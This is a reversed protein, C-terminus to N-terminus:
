TIWQLVSATSESVRDQTRKAQKQPFRALREIGEFRRQWSVTGPSWPYDNEYRFVQLAARELALYPQLLYLYEDMTREPDEPVAFVEVVLDRIGAVDGGNDTVMAGSVVFTDTAFNCWLYEDPMHHGWYTTTRIDRFRREYHTNARAERCAQVVPPVPAACFVVQMGYRLRGRSLAPWLNITRHEYALSWILIRLEYPLRPFPHFTAMASINHAELQRTTSTPNLRSQRPLHM